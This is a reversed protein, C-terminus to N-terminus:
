LERWIVEEEDTSWLRGNFSFRAIIENGVKLVGDNKKVTLETLNNGKCYLFYQNYADDISKVQPRKKGLTIRVVNDSFFQTYENM